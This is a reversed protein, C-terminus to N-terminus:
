GKVWFKIKPWYKSNYFNNKLVRFFNKVKKKTEFDKLTIESNLKWPERKEWFTVVRIIYWVIMNMTLVNSSFSFPSLPIQVRAGTARGVGKAPAGRWGRSYKEQIDKQSRFDCMHYQIRWLAFMIIDVINRNTLLM